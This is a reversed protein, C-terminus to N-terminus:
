MMHRAIFRLMMLTTNPPKPVSAPPPPSLAPATAASFPTL